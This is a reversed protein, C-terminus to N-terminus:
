HRWNQRHPQSSSPFVRCMGMDWRARLTHVCSCLCMHLGLRESLQTTSGVFYLTTGSHTIVNFPSWFLFVNWIYTQTAQTEEEPLSIPIDENHLYDHKWLELFKVAKSRLPLKDVREKPFLRESVRQKVATCLEVQTVTLPRPWM